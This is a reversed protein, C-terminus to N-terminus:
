WNTLENLKCIICSSHCRELPGQTSKQCNFFQNVMKLAFLRVWKIYRLLSIPHNSTLCSNQATKTFNPKVFLYIIPNICRWRFRVFTTLCQGGFMTSAWKLSRSAKEGESSGWGLFLVVNNVVLVFSNTWENTTWIVEGVFLRSGM